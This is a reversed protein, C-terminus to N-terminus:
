SPFLLPSTTSSRLVKGQEFAITDLKEHCWKLQSSSLMSMQLVRSVLKMDIMTFLIERRESEELPKVIKNFWCRRKGEIDKLWLERKQLRKTLDAYLGFDRPDEVPSFTWLSNFKWWPKKKDVKLFDWYSNICKEIAKFLVGKVAAAEENRGEEETFESVEPVQLLSESAIRGRVYNWIRKGDATREDEVFRDLLVQFKQFEEAVNGCPVANKLDSSALSRVRRYHFYLAEWSLCSQAVYVLEVDNEISRLLRKKASRSWPTLSVSFDMNMSSELSSPLGPQLIVSLGCTREQNLTDFWRMRASYKKYFDESEGNENSGIISNRQFAPSSSNCTFSSQNGNSCPDQAPSVSCFENSNVDDGTPSRTPIILSSYEDVISNDAQPDFVQEVTSPNDEEICEEDYECGNEKELLYLREQNCVIPIVSSCSYLSLFQHNENFTDVAEEFIDLDEEESFDVPSVEVKRFFSLVYSVCYGYFGFTYSCLICVIRCPYLLLTLLLRFCLFIWCCLLFVPHIYFSLYFWKLYGYPIVISEVIFWCSILPSAM